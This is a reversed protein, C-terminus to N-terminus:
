IEDGGAIKLHAKESSHIKSEKVKKIIFLQGLKRPNPPSNKVSIHM